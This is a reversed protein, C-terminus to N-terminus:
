YGAGGTPRRDNDALKRALRQRIPSSRPQRMKTQNARMVNSQSAAAMSQQQGIPSGMGGGAAKYNANQAMKANVASQFQAPGTASAM